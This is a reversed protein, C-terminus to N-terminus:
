LFNTPSILVCKKNSAFFYSLSNLIHKQGSQHYSMGYPNLCCGDLDLFSIQDIFLIQLPLVFISIKLAETEFIYIIKM